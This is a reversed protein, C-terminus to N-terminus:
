KWGEACELIIDMSPLSRDEERECTLKRVPPLDDLSTLFEDCTTKNEFHSFVDDVYRDYVELWKDDIIGSEYFGVFINALVLGLPSAM